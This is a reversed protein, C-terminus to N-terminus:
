RRTRNAIRAEDHDALETVITEPKLKGGSTFAVLRPRGGFLEWTCCTAHWWYGRSFVAFPGPARVYKGCSDCTM